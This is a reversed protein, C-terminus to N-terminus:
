LYADVPRKIGAPYTRRVYEAFHRGLAGSANRAAQERARRRRRECECDPDRCGCLPGDAGGEYRRRLWGRWEDARRLVRDYEAGRRAVRKQRFAYWGAPGRKPMRRYYHCDSRDRPAPLEECGGFGRPALVYQADIPKRKGDANGSWMQLAPPPHEPIAGRRM